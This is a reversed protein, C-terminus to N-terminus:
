AELMGFVETVQEWGVRLLFTNNRGYSKVGLVFFGPEPNQLMEPGQRVSDLCDAGGSGLLAAALKMPGSTAYCEHVQLQRYLRDDGVSGTLSLVQDVTVSETSGGAGRLVARIGGNAEEVRDVVRGALLEVAPSGSDALERAVRALEARTPLPDDPVAGWDPVENRVAWLVHTGPAAEGLSALDRAATQASHGAGVLLTTRGGWVERTRELDPITRTIRSGLAAEGPAPIGGDGLPNPRDHTGTCDLVVEAREVWERDGSDRLLLRFAHEGRRGTGIEHHKLLGERSVAEVRVGTRLGEQVESTRALPGLVREVLEHGTPPEDRDLPVVGDPLHRLMRESVNMSWPTFLRVHGWSRLNGAVDDAAEYLTFPFGAEICALAAEMGIPGAGLIAVRAARGDTM